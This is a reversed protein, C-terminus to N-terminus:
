NEQSQQDKANSWTPARFGAEEREEMRKIEDQIVTILEQERHLKEV